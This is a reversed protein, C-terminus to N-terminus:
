KGPRGSPTVLQVIPSVSGGPMGLDGVITVPDRPGGTDAPADPGAAVGRVVLFVVGIVAAAYGAVLVARHSEAASMTTRRTRAAHHHMHPFAPQRMIM